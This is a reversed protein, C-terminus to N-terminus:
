GGLRVGVQLSQRTQTAVLRYHITAVASEADDPDPITDVSEIIVRPEWRALVRAIRESIQHRTTVTNPQFLFARLGAGLDPRFLREGPDTGLLIRISEEVNTEGESWQVRGDEGVRMPFAFGKGFLKAPTM